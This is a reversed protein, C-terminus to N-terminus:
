GRERSAADVDRSFPLREDVRDVLHGSVKGVLHAGDGLGGGGNRPPIEALLDGDLRVSLHETEDVSDVGHNISHAINSELSFLPFSVKISEM